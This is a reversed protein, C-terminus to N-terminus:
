KSSGNEQTAEPPTERRPQILACIEKLVKLFLSEFIKMGRITLIGSQASYVGLFGMSNHSIILFGKSGDLVPATPDIATKISNMLAVTEDKYVKQMSIELEGIFPQLFQMMKSNTDLDDGRAPFPSGYPLIRYRIKQEGNKNYTQVKEKLKEVYRLYYHGHERNSMLYEALGPNPTSALIVLEDGPITHELVYTLFEVYERMGTIPRIYHLVMYSVFFGLSTV